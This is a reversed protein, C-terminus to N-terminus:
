LRTFYIETFKVGSSFSKKFFIKEKTSSPRRKSKELRGLFTYLLPHLNRIQTACHQTYLTYVSYRLIPIIAEPAVAAAPVYVSVTTFTRFQCSCTTTDPRHRSLYIRSHSKHWTRSPSLSISIPAGACICLYKHFHLAIRFMYHGSPLTWGRTRNWTLRSGTYLVLANRARRRRCSLNSMQWSKYVVIRIVIDSKRDESMDSLKGVNFFHSFENNFQVKKRINKKEFRIWIRLEFQENIM